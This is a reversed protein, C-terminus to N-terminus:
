SPAKAKEIDRRDEEIIVEVADVIERMIKGRMGKDTLLIPVFSRDFDSALFTRHIADFARERASKM